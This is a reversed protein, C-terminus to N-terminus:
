KSTYFSYCDPSTFQPTWLNLDTVSFVDPVYQLTGQYVPVDCVEFLNISSLFAQNQKITELRMLEYESLGGQAGQTM